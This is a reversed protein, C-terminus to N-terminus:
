AWHGSWSWIQGDEVPIGSYSVESIAMKELHGVILYSIQYSFNLFIKRVGIM